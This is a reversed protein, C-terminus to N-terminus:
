GAACPLRHRWAIDASNQRIARNGLATGKACHKKDCQYPQPALRPLNAAYCLLLAKSIQQYISNLPKTFVDGPGYAVSRQVEIVVKRERFHFNDGHTKGGMYPVDTADFICKNRNSFAIEVIYKNSSM